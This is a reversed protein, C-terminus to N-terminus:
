ALASPQTIRYRIRKGIPQRLPRKVFENRGFTSVEHMYTVATDVRMPYCRFARLAALVQLPYGSGFPQAMM